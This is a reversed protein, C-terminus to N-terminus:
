SKVGKVPKRYTGQAKVKVLPRHEKPTDKWKDGPHPVLVSSCHVMRPQLLAAAEEQGMLRRACFDYRLEGNKRKM